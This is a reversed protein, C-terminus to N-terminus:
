KKAIPAAQSAQKKRQQALQEIQRASLGIHDGPSRSFPSPAESRTGKPIQMAYLSNISLSIVLYIYKM